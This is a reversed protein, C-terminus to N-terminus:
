LGWKNAGKRPAISWSGAGAEMTDNFLANKQTGVPCDDQALVVSPTVPRRIAESSPAVPKRTTTTNAALLLRRPQTTHFGAQELFRPVGATATGAAFTVGISCALLGIGAKANTGLM